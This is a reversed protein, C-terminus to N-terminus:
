VRDRCSARGIEGVSGCLCGRHDRLWGLFGWLGASVGNEPLSFAFLVRRNELSEGERHFRVTRGELAARLTEGLRGELSGPATVLTLEQEM